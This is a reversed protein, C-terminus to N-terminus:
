RGWRRDVYRAFQALRLWVHASVRQRVPLREGHVRALELSLLVGLVCFVALVPSQANM